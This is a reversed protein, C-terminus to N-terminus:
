YAQQLHITELNDPKGMQQRDPVLDNSIEHIIDTNVSENLRYGFQLAPNPM